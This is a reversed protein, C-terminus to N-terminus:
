YLAPVVGADVAADYFFALVPVVVAVAFATVGLSNGALAAVITALFPAAGWAFALHTITVTRAATESQPEGTWPERTAM